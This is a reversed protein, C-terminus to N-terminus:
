PSASASIEAVPVQPLSKNYDECIATFVVKIATHELDKKNTIHEEIRKVLKKLRGLMEENKPEPLADKIEVCRLMMGASECVLKNQTMMTDMTDIKKQIENEQKAVTEAYARKFLKAHEAKVDNLWEKAEAVTQAATQQHELAQQILDRTPAKLKPNLDVNLKEILKEILDGKAKVREVCFHAFIIEAKKQIEDQDKKVDVKANSKEVAKALDKSLSEVKVIIDRASEEFNPKSNKDKNFLEILTKMEAAEIKVANAKEQALALYEKNLFNTMEDELPKKEPKPSAPPSNEVPADVRKVVPKTSEEAKYIDKLNSMITNLKAYKAQYALLTKDYNPTREDNIGHNTKLVEKASDMARTLTDFATEIDAVDSSSLKTELDIIAAHVSDLANKESEVVLKTPYVRFWGRVREIAKLALFDSAESFLKNGIVAKVSAILLCKLGLALTLGFKGLGTHTSDPSWIAKFAPSQQAFEKVIKYTLGLAFLVIAVTGGTAVIGAVGTFGAFFLAANTFGTGAAISAGAVTWASIISSWEWILSLVKFATRKPNTRDAEVALVSRGFFKVDENENALLKEEREDLGSKVAKKCEVLANNLKKISLTKMLNVSPTLAKMLMLAQPIDKADVAPAAAAPAEEAAKNAIQDDKQKMIETLAKFSKSYQEEDATELSMVLLRNYLAMTIFDNNKPSSFDVKALLFEFTNDEAQEQVRYDDDLDQFKKLIKTKPQEDSGEFLYTVCGRKDLAPNERKIARYQLYFIAFADRDNEDADDENVYKLAKAQLARQIEIGLLPYIKDRAAQALASTSDAIAGEYQKVLAEIVGQWKDKAWNSELIDKVINVALPNFCYSFANEYKMSSINKAVNKTFDFFWSQAVEGGFAFMKTVVQDMLEEQKPLLNAMSLPDGLQSRLEPTSHQKQAKLFEERADVVQAFSSHDKVSDILKRFLSGDINNPMMDMQLAFPVLQSILTRPDLQEVIQLPNEALSKVEVPLSAINHAINAKNSDISTNLQNLMLMLSDIYAVKKQSVTYLGSDKSLMEELPEVITDKQLELKDRMAIIVPQLSEIIVKTKDCLVQHPTKKFKDDDVKKHVIHRKSTLEKILSLELGIKDYASKLEPRASNAENSQLFQCLHKLDKSSLNQNSQLKSYIAPMLHSTSNAKVFGITKELLPIFHKQQYGLLIRDVAPALFETNFEGLPAQADIAELSAKLGTLLKGIDVPEDLQVDNKYYEFSQEVHKLTNIMCLMEHYKKEPSQGQKIQQVLTLNLCQFNANATEAFTQYKTFDAGEIGLTKMYSDFFKKRLKESDQLAADTVLEYFSLYAMERKIENLDMVGPAKLKRWFASVSDKSSFWHSVFLQQPMLSAMRSFFSRVGAVGAVGQQVIANSYSDNIEKLWAPCLDPNKHFVNLIKDFGGSLAIIQDTYTKELFSEGVQAVGNGMEMLDQYPKLLTKSALDSLSDFEVGASSLLTNQSKTQKYAGALTLNAKKEKVDNGKKIMKKIFDLTEDTVGLANGDLPLNPIAIQAAVHLASTLSESTFEAEGMTDILKALVLANKKPEYNYGKNNKVLALLSKEVVFPFDELLKLYDEQAELAELFVTETEHRAAVDIAKLGKILDQTKERANALTSLFGTKLLKVGINDREVAQVVTTLLIQATQQVKNLFDDDKELKVIDKPENESFLGDWTEKELIRYQRLAAHLHLKVFADSYNAKKLTARVLSEILTILDDQTKIVTMRFAGIICNQGITACM